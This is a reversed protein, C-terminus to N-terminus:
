QLLFLSIMAIQHLEFLSALFRGCRAEHSMGGGQRKKEGNEFRVCHKTQPPSFPLTSESQPSFFFLIGSASSLTALLPQSRGSFDKDARMFPFCAGPMVLAALRHERSQLSKISNCDEIKKKTVLHM